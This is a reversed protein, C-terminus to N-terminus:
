TFLLGLLTPIISMPRLLFQILHCVSVPTDEPLIIADCGLSALDGVGDTGPFVRGQRRVDQLDDVLTAVLHFAVWKM